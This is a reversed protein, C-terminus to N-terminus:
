VSVSVSVSVLWSASYTVKRKSNDNNHGKVECERAMVGLVSVSYKSEGGVKVNVRVSVRLM